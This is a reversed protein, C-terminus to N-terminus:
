YYAIDSIKEPTPFSCKKENYCLTIRDRLKIIMNHLSSAYTNYNDKTITDLNRGIIELLQKGENTLKDRTLEIIQKIAEKMNNIYTDNVGNKEILHYNVDIIIIQESLKKYTDEECSLKECSLVPKDQLSYIKIADKGKKIWSTM